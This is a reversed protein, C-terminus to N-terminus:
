VAVVPDKRVSSTLLINEEIWTLYNTQKDLDGTGMSLQACYGLFWEWIDLGYVAVGHLYYITVSTIKNFEIWFCKIWKEYTWGMSRREMCITVSTIKNFEIWFCKIWKERTGVQDKVRYQTLLPVKSRPPSGMAPFRVRYTVRDPCTPCPCTPCMLIPSVTTLYLFWDLCYIVM